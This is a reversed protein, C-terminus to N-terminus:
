TLGDPPRLRPRKSSDRQRTYDIIGLAEFHKLAQPNIRKWKKSSKFRHIQNKLDRNYMDLCEVGYSSISYLTNKNAGTRAKRVHASQIENILGKTHLVNLFRKIDWRTCPVVPRLGAISVLGNGYFQILECQILVTLQKTTLKYARRVHYLAKQHFASYLLINDRIPEHMRLM